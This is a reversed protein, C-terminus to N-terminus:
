CSHWINKKKKRGRKNKKKLLLKLEFIIHLLCENFYQTSQLPHPAPITDFHIFRTKLFYVGIPFWVYKFLKKKKKKKNHIYLIVVTHFILIHYGVCRFLCTPPKVGDLMQFRQKSIFTRGKREKGIYFIWKVLLACSAWKILKKKKKKERKSRILIYIKRKTKTKKKFKRNENM